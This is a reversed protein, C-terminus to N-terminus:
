RATGGQGAMMVKRSGTEAIKAITARPFLRTAFAQLRIAARCPVLVARRKDFAALAQTVIRDPSDMADKSLKSGIKDFFATEVPGPCVALVRTGQARLERGLAESFLLVFAKTAAYVASYALPQFAAASAINIVGANGGFGRMDAAFLHTLAKLATVNVAIQDKERDLDHDLFAGALAFGANNVLLNVSLGRAKADAHIGAPASPDALDAAIVAAEVKYTARLREALAELKHATRAVLVVNAGRRALLEAFTEGLGSSAGTVLATTHAYDFM